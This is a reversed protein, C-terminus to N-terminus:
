ASRRGRATSGRAAAGREGTACVHRDRLERSWTEIALDRREAWHRSSSNPEAGSRTNILGGCTVLPRAVAIYERAEEPPYLESPRLYPPQPAALFRQRGACGNGRPRTTISPGSAHFVEDLFTKARLKECPQSNASPVWRGAPVWRGVQGGVGDVGLWWGGGWGLLLGVVPQLKLLKQVFCCCTLFMSRVRFPM